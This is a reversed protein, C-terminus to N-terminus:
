VDSLNYLRRTVRSAMFTETHQMGPSIICWVVVAHRSKHKKGTVILWTLLLKNHQSDIRYHIVNLGSLTHVRGRDPDDASLASTGENQGIFLEAKKKKSVGGRHHCLLLVQRCKAKTRRTFSRVVQTPCGSGLRWTSWLPQERKLMSLKARKGTVIALSLAREWECMCDWAWEVGAWLLFSVSLLPQRSRQPALLVSWGGWFVCVSRVFTLMWVQLYKDTPQKKTKKHNLTQLMRSKTDTFLYLQLTSVTAAPPLVPSLSSAHARSQSHCSHM